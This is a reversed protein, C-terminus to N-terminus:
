FREALSIDRKAHLPLSKGSTCSYQQFNAPGSSTVTAKGSKPGQHRNFSTVCLLKPSFSYNANLILCITRLEALTFSIFKLIKCLIIQKANRFPFNSHSVKTGDLRNGTTRGREGFDNISERVKILQFLQWIQVAFSHLQNTTVKSM